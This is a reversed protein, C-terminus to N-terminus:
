RERDRGVGLRHAADGLDAAPARVLDVLAVGELPDVLREARAYARAVLLALDTCRERQASQQEQGCRGSKRHAPTRAQRLTGQTSPLNPPKPDRSTAISRPVAFVSTYTRPRPITTDSGETTAISVFVPATCATPESAFRIIPRVGAFM